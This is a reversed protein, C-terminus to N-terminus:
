PPRFEFGSVNKLNLSSNSVENVIIPRQYGVIPGERHHSMLLVIKSM